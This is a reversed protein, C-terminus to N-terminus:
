SLYIWKRPFTTLRKLGNSTVVFTDELGIVGLEPVHFKPEFAVVMNERLISKNGPSIVPPEDIELGVGHGIFNIKDGHKMFYEKVGKKEVIEEAMFYLDECVMGAKAKKELTKLIELSTRFFIEGKKGKGFVAMRTQDVYYGKYFGGYDILIPEEEKIKKFSAGGPFGEIGKGGEGTTFPLAFLGEKGSILYGFALEFRNSSRTYGPHGRKRLAQELIACLEIERMGKKFQSLSEKLAQSLLQSARKQCHIEYSSKIMRLEWILSDIPILEFDSLLGRLREGEEWSFARFEIGIKKLSFEKLIEPLNKFSEFPYLPLYSKNRVQSYPRKVFLKIERETLLLFGKIWLGTFYFLNLHSFVLVGDLGNESVRKRLGKLRSEIEEKNM